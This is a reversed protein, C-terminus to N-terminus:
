RGPLTTRDSCKSKVYRSGPTWPVRALFDTLDRYDTRGPRLETVVGNREDPYVYAPYLVWHETYSSPDADQRYVEGVLIGGQYLGVSYTVPPIQAAVRPAALSAVLLLAALSLMVARVKKDM